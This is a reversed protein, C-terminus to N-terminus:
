SQAGEVLAKCAADFEANAARRTDDYLKYAAREKTHRISRAKKIPEVLSRAKAEGEPGTFTAYVDSARVNMPTETEVDRGWYRRAKATTVAMLRLDSGYVDNVVCHMIAPKM